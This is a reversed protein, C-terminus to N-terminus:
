GAIRARITGPCALGNVSTSGDPYVNSITTRAYVLSGINNWHLGLPEYDKAWRFVYVRNQDKVLM